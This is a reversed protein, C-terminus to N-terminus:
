RGPLPPPGNRRPLPPPGQKRATQRAQPPRLITDSEVPPGGARVLSAWRECAFATAEDLYLDIASREDFTVPKARAALTDWLARRLLAFERVLGRVGGEPQSLVLLVARRWPTDPREESRMARALDRLLIPAALQLSAESFGLQEKVAGHYRGLIEQTNEEIYLGVGLVM